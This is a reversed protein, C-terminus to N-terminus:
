PNVGALQDRDLRRTQAPRRVRLRSLHEGVWVGQRDIDQEGRGEAYPGFKLRWEHERVLRDFRLRGHQGCPGYANVVDLNAQRLQRRANAWAALHILPGIEPEKESLADGVGIRLGVDVNADGGM